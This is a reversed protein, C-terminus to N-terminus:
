RVRAIAIATILMLGVTPAWAVLIPDFGYVTGSNTLVQDAVYFGLGICLGVLTLYVPSTSSFWKRKQSAANEAMIRQVRRDSIRQRYADQDHLKRDVAQERRVKSGGQYVTKERPLGSKTQDLRRIRLEEPQRMRQIREAYEYAADMDDFADNTIWRGDNAIQVEFIPM